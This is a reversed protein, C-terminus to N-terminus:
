RRRAEVIPMDVFPLSRRAKQERRMQRSAKGVGALLCDLELLFSYTRHWGRAQAAIAWKLM